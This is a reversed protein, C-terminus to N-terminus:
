GRRRNYTKYPKGYYLKPYFADEIHNVEYDGPGGSIAIIDFRIDCDLRYRRVYSNAALSLSHIKEEDVALEGSVASGKHRTKVEVFVVLSAGKQAVIDIDRHGSRWDQVLITYGEKRLYDAAAEEGWKGLINHEAM